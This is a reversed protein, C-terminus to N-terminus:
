IRILLHTCSTSEPASKYLSSQFEPSVQLLQAGTQKVSQLDKGSSGLYSALPWLGDPPLWVLQQPLALPRPLHHQLGPFLDQHEKDKGPQPTQVQGSMPQLHHPAVSLNGNTVQLCVTCNCLAPHPTTHSLSGLLCDQSQSPRVWSVTSNFIRPDALPEDLMCCITRSVLLGWSCVWSRHVNSGAKRQDGEQPGSGTKRTGLM